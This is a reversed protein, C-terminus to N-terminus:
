VGIEKVEGNFYPYLQLFNSKFCFIDINSQAAKKMVSYFEPDNEQNFKLCKADEGMLIFVVAVSYGENRLELLEQIHRTGRKTPADPFLAYDDIFYNVSKVEIIWKKKGQEFYFDFRSNEIKKERKLNNINNFYKIYGKRLWVEFLDNAGSANLLIPTKRQNEIFLFDYKTKREPKNVFKLYAKRGNILLEQMRGTNAIHALVYEGSDLQVEVTFRNVKRIFKGTILDSYGM